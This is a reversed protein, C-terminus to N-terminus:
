GSGSHVIDGLLELLHSFGPEEVPFHGCGELMHVSHHAGPLLGTLAGTAPDSALGTVAGTVSGPQGPLRAHFTLSVEAPTWRDDAPHILTVPPGAYNEPAVVPGDTALSRFWGLPMAGAGGRTDAAVADVLGPDAAIREMPAIARLPLFASALPGRAFSLSAAAIRGAWPWRSVRRIVQPDSLDLLCTAVVAAAHPSVAGVDYALMGGMSAGIVTVPCPTHGAATDLGPAPLHAIEATLDVLLEQWDGYTVHPDRAPRTLGYGSLDAVFVQIGLAAFHAAFPRMAAANGGAGHILIARAPAQPDGIAEVHVDWRRHRWTGIRVQTGAPVPRVFPEYRREDPPLAALDVAPGLTVGRPTPPRSRCVRRHHPLIDPM